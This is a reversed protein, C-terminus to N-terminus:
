GSALKAKAELSRTGSPASYKTELLVGRTSHSPIKVRTISWFSVELGRTIQPWANWEAPKGKESWGRGGKQDSTSARLFIGPGCCSGKSRKQGPPPRQKPGLTVRFHKKNQKQRWLFLLRDWQEDKPFLFVAKGKWKLSINDERDSSGGEKPEKGQQSYWRKQMQVWLATLPSNTTTNCTSKMNMSPLPHQGEWVPLMCGPKPFTPNRDAELSPSQCTLSYKLPNVLVLVLCPM